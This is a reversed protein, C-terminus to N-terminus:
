GNSVHVRPDSEEPKRGWASVFFTLGLFDARRIEEQTHEELAMMARKSMAKTALIIPIMTTM